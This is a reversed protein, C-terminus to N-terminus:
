SEAPTDGASNGGHAVSGMEIVNDNSRVTPIQFPLGKEERLIKQEAKGKKHTSIQVWEWIVPHRDLASDRAKLLHIVRPTEETPSPAWRSQTTM